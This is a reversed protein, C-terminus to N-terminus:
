KREEWRLRSLYDFNWLFVVGFFLWQFSPWQPHGRKGGAGASPAAWSTAQKGRRFFMTTKVYFFGHKSTTKTPQLSHSLFHTYCKIIYVVLVLVSSLLSNFGTMHKKLISWQWLFVQVGLHQIEKAAEAWAGASSKLCRALLRTVLLVELMTWVFINHVHTTGVQIKSYRPHFEM